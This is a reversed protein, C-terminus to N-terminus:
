PPAVEDLWLYLLELQCDTWQAGPPPPMIAMRLFRAIVSDRGGAILRGDEFTVFYNEVEDQTNGFYPGFAPEEGIHCGRCGPSNLGRDQTMLAFVADFPNEQAFAPAAITLAASVAAGAARHTKM